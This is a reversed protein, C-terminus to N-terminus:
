TADFYIDAVFLALVMALLVGVITWLFIKRVNALPRTLLDRNLDAKLLPISALFGVGAIWYGVPIIVALAIQTAQTYAASTPDTSRLALGIIEPGSSYILVQVAAWIALGFTKYRAPLLLAILANLAGLWTEATLYAASMSGYLITTGRAENGNALNKSFIMLLVFISSIMGGIATLYIPMLKTRSWTLTTLLGGSLVSVTGVVGVIIGYRSLLETQSPYTNSLYSPMYYGFVNGALQRFSASLVLLWFSRLRVVYNLTELLEARAAVLKSSERGDNLSIIERTLSEDPGIPLKSKRGPDRVIIRVVLAVVLGTIGIARMAVRWSQHSKTFATAIQGSVAEGIYVGVYFCSESIFVYRWQGVLDSILSVSLAEVAAQGVGMGIRALLIQWFHGALGQFIVCLSWWLAAVVLVWVRAYPFFDAIYAIPLALLAYVIGTAYGSLVAYETASLSLDASLSTQFYSLIFKDYQSLFYNLFLVLIAAIIYCNHLISGAAEPSKITPKSRRTTLKEDDDVVRSSPSKPSENSSSM